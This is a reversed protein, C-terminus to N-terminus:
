VEVVAIGTSGGAGRVIATYNSGNGSLILELMYQQEPSPYGISYQTHAFANQALMAMVLVFPAIFLLRVRRIMGHLNGRPVSFSLPFANLAERARARFGRGNGAMSAADRRDAIRIEGALPRQLRAAARHLEEDGRPVVQRDHTNEASHGGRPLLRPGMARVGALQM